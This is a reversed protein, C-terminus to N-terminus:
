FLETSELTMDHASGGHAWVGGPHRAPPPPLPAPAACVRPVNAVVNRAHACAQGGAPAERWTVSHRWVVSYRWTVSHRWTVCQSWTVCHRWTICHRWTVGSHRWAALSLHHLLPPDLDFMKHEIMTHRWAQATTSTTHISSTTPRTTSCWAHTMAPLARAGADESCWWWWLFYQIYVCIYYM